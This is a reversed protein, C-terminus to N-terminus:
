KILTGGWEVVTFGSRTATTLEQENINIRKDLPKYMMLIRILSDPTESLELPMKENIEDISAFYIYNYKNVELKPLWYVIFEEAEKENLGLIELKEELFSITDEGKVIFGENMNPKINYKAEYYLSYLERGTNNDILTGDPYAKVNWGNVYKPYSVTIYEKNPLKVEINMEKEPYLYIIPKDVNPGYKQGNSTETCKHHFHYYLLGGIIIALVVIIIIIIKKKM